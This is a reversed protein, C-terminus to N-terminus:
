RNPVDDFLDNCCDCTYCRATPHQPICPCNECSDTARCQKYIVELAGRVIKAGEETM